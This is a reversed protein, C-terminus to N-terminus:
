FNLRSVRYTISLNFNFLVLLPIIRIVAEANQKASIPINTRREPSKGAICFLKKLFITASTKETATRKFSCLFYSDRFTSYFIKKQASKESRDAYYTIKIRYSLKDECIRRYKILHRRKQSGRFGRLISPFSLGSFLLLLIPQM